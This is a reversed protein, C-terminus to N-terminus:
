DKREVAITGLIRAPEGREVALRCKVLVGYSRRWM